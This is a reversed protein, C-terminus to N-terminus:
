KISKVKREVKAIGKEVAAVIASIAQNGKQSVATRLWAYAKIESSGFELIKGYRSVSIGSPTKKRRVIVGYVESAQRDIRKPDKARKQVINKELFGTSKSDRGGKNPEAVIARVNAKAQERIIKAGASLGSRIPGGRVAMEKPFARLRGILSDIGEIKIDLELKDAM